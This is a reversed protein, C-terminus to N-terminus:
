LEIKQSLQPLSHHDEDYFTINGSNNEIELIAYSGKNIPGRPQSISGPNIFYIGEEKDVKPIHTHGYFVIQCDEKRAAKKLADFSTKVHHLHGHAVFFKQGYYEIVNTEPFAKTIDMNGRVTQYTQWVPNDEKFESDGCHIWVDVEEQYISFIEEMLYAEGHNDSIVLVKM